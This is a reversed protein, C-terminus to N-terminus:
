EPIQKSPSLFVRFVEPLIARRRVLIQVRAGSYPANSWSTRQHLHYQGRFLHRGLSPCQKRIFLQAYSLPHWFSSMRKNVTRLQITKHCWIHLHNPIILHALIHFSGTNARLSQSVDRYVETCIATLCPVVSTGLLPYQFIHQLMVSIILNTLTNSWHQLVLGRKHSPSLLKLVFRRM